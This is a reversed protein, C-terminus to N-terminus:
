RGESGDSYHDTSVSLSWQGQCTVSWIIANMLYAESADCDGIM